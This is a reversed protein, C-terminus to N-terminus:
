RANCPVGESNVFPSESFAWYFYKESANYNTDTTRIKFGNSLFDMEKTTDEVLSDNLALAREMENYTSRKNDWCLWEGGSSETRKIVLYAPRFGLYVFPGNANNNGEYSGFKSFGQKEAFCYAILGASSGNTGTSTGVSFVSSTPATDNWASADTGEADTTNLFLRKTWGVSTSGVRWAWGGTGLYKIIIMSPVVGLGHGVTANSGTGTYSVISFGSTTNATVTSSISGDTNASGSGNAIWNWAVYNDSTDNTRDDSSSGATVTFGDSTLATLYGDGKDTIEEGSGDSSITKNAGRLVDVLTHGNAGTRNKLWVWDPQFGVGTLTRPNSGDGTYLKTNFYLGSDDIATYVAM